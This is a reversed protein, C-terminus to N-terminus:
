KFRSSFILNELEFVELNTLVLSQQDLSESILARLFLSNKVIQFLNFFSIM